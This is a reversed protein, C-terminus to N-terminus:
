GDGASSATVAIGVLAVGETILEVAVFLGLVWKWSDIWAAQGEATAMIEPDPSMMMQYLIVGLAISVLGLVIVLMQLGGHGRLQFITLLRLVGTVILAIAVGLTLWYAASTPMTLLAIGVAAYVAGVIVHWIVGRWKKHHLADLLQGVGAILILIGIWFIAISTLRYTM